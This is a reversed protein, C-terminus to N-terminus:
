KTGRADGALESVGLMGAISTRGYRLRTWVLILLVGAVTAAAGLVGAEPGYAGGTIATPGGQRIAFLSAPEKDGSVPFGFVAGEFLNWGMHLGIPIALEGTVVYGTALLIGNLSLALLSIPTANPTVGHLAGFILSTMLVSLLVAGRRGIRGLRNLGEAINTLQYGRSVFEEYTGVCMAKVLSFILAVSLPLSPSTPQLTGTVVAWGAAWEVAFILGMLVAGLGLGFGFDMWWARSLHVGFESFRRRDLLRGALWVSIVVMVTFLPGVILNVVKDFIEDHVGAFLVGRTRAANLSEGVLVVPGLAVLALLAAHVVLRWLARPRQEDSNWFVTKISAHLV